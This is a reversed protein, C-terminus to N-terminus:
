ARNGFCYHICTWFIKTRLLSESLYIIM